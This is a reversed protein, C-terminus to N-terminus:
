PDGEVGDKPPPFPGEWFRSFDFLLIAEATEARIREYWGVLDRADILGDIPNPRIDYNILSIVTQSVAAVAAWFGDEFRYPGGEIVGVGGPQATSASIEYVGSTTTLGGGNTSIPQISYSGGILETSWVTELVILGMAFVLAGLAIPRMKKPRTRRLVVHNKPANLAFNGNTFGRGAASVGGQEISRVM